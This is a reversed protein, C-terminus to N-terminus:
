LLNWVVLSNEEMEEEGEEVMECDMKYHRQGSCTALLQGGPHWGVGNSADRHLLWGAVPELLGTESNAQRDLDWTRISGDTNASSLYKECSSLAFQITQNTTVERQMTCLVMGPQRLDWCLLENDKRGGAFLKRGDKSFTVQTVGGVQGRLVCLRDGQVSYLGVTRDYCGAAYVPLVESVALCSIIGSQGSKGKAMHSTSHRGPRSVDFVRVEGKLGCYLTTATKDLAVSFAHSLEDLQNICKYTSELQIDLQNDTSNNCTYLQVPQYRGTTVLMSPSTSCSGSSWLWSYLCEAHRIRAGPTFEFFDSDRNNNSYVQIMTDTSVALHDGSPSWHLGTPLAPSLTSSFVAQPIGSLILSPSEYSIQDPSLPPPSQEHLPPPPPEPSPLPPPRLPSHSPEPISQPPSKCTPVVPVTPQSENNDTQPDEINHSSIDNLQEDLRECADSSVSVSVGPVVEMKEPVANTVSLDDVIEGAVHGVHESADEM